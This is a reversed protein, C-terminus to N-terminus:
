TSSQLILRIAHFISRIKFVISLISDMISYYIAIWQITQICHLAKVILQQASIGYWLGMLGGCSVLYDTFSMVEAEIYAFAPERHSWVFRKEVFRNKRKLSFWYKNRVLVESGIMDYYYIVNTCMKPCERRCYSNISNTIRSTEFKKYTEYDCVNSYNHSQTYDEDSQTIANDVIFPNCDFRNFAEIILCRRYCQLPTSANFPSDSHTSYTLCDGFQHSLHYRITKRIYFSMNVKMNTQFFRNEELDSFDPINDTSLSVGILQFNFNRKYHIIEFLNSDYISQNKPEMTFIFYLQYQLLNKKVARFKGRSTNYVLIFNLSTEINKLHNNNFRFNSANYSSLYKKLRIQNKYCKLIFRHCEELQTSNQDMQFSACEDLNKIRPEIYKKGDKNILALENFKKHDYAFTIKPM